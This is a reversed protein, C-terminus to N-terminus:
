PPSSSEIALIPAMSFPPTCGSLCMPDLFQVVFLVVLLVAMLAALLAALLVALQVAHV